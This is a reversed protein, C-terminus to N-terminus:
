GDDASPLQSVPSLRVCSLSRARATHTHAHTHTLLRNTSSQGIPKLAFYTSECATHPRPPTVSVHMSERAIFLSFLVFFTSECARSRLACLTMVARVKNIALCEAEREGKDARGQVRESVERFLESGALDVMMLQSVKPAQGAVTTRLTLCIAMHSRSSKDNIAAGTVRQATAEGLFRVFDSPKAITKSAFHAFPDGGRMLVAAMNPKGPALLDNVSNLYNDAVSM